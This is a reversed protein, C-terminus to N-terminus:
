SQVFHTSVGKDTWGEVYNDDATRRLRRAEVDRGARILVGEVLAKGLELSTLTSARASDLLVEGVLSGLRISITTSKSVLSVLSAIPAPLLTPGAAPVPPHLLRDDSTIVELPRSM